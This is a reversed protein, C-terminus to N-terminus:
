LAHMYQLVFVTGVCLKSRVNTCRGWMCLARMVKKIKLGALCHLIRRAAATAFTSNQAPQQVHTAGAASSRGRDALQQQAHLVATVVSTDAGQLQVLLDQMLIGRNPLHRLVQIPRLGSSDTAEWAGEAGEGHKSGWQLVQCVMQSRGSLLASTLLSPHSSCANAESVKLAAGDAPTQATCQSAATKQQQQQQQQQKPVANTCWVHELVAPLRGFM